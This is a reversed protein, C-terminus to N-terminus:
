LIKLEGSCLEPDAKVITWGQMTLKRLIVVGLGIPCQNVDCLLDKLPWKGFKDLAEPGNCECSSIISKDLCVSLCDRIYYLARINNNHQM